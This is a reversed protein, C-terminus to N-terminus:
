KENMGCASDKVTERVQVFPFLNSNEGNYASYFMIDIKKLMIFDLM